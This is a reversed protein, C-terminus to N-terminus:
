NHDELISVATGNKVEVTADVGEKTAAELQEETCPTAAQGDANGCIEGAGEIDTSTSTFFAQEVGGSTVTYKGPALYSVTGHVTGDASSGPTAHGRSGPTQDAATQAPEGHGSKTQVQNSSSASSSSSQKEGGDGSGQCATLLTASAVVGVAALLTKRSYTRLM